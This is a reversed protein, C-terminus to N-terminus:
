SCVIRNCSNVFDILDLGGTGRRKRRFDNRAEDAPLFRPGEAQLASFPPIWESNQTEGARKGSLLTSKKHFTLNKVTGSM